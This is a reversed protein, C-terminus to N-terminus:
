NYFSKASSMSLFKETTWGAEPTDQKHGPTIVGAGYASELVTALHLLHSLNAIAQCSDNSTTLKM